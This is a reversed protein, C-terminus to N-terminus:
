VKLLNVIRPLFFLEKLLTQHSLLSLKPRFIQFKFKLYFSHDFYTNHLLGRCYVILVHNPSCIVLCLDFLRIFNFM